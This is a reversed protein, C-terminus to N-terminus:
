RGPVGARHYEAVTQRVVGPWDQPPPTSRLHARMSTRLADDGVLHALAGALMVDSDGLLGDVGDTLFDDAGTGRTAVVPVGAARAELAAIGFAELRATSLYVDASHHLRRLAERDVRGPLSVWDMGRTRLYREMLRRQPGEGVLTARMPVTRDLIARAGRLVDLTALPRKRSVFRMASVVHVPRRAHETGLGQGSTAEGSRDQAGGARWWSAEVGNPVVDVRADGAVASVRAAAMSSVSNLAVGCSAWRALHGLMRFVPGSRDVVCHFTAAVPLRLDVAVPVIDTSFPSLVGLHAHVVDFRGGRLRRRVEGPAFPNVPLGFPLPLALRHVPIGDDGTETTGAREGRAGTTATFVEVEHGAARLHRSLDRVQSEIGGLRPVYCDTVMAVKVASLM